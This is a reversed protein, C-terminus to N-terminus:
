LTLSSQPIYELRVAPASGARIYLVVDDIIFCDVPDSPRSISEIVPHSWDCRNRELACKGCVLCSPPSFMQASYGDSLCFLVTEM